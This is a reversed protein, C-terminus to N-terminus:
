VLLPLSVEAQAPAASPDLDEIWARLLEATAATSLVAGARPLGGDLEFTAPVGAFHAGGLQGRLVDLWDHARSLAAPERDHVRVMASYYPGLWATIALKSGPRERLGFPTFLELEIARMLRLARDPPLVAPPLSAALVHAPELGAVRAGNELRTFLRGSADDWLLDACRQRQERAWALYFAGNERRGVLRAMQAMAVLAHYWLANLDARAVSVGGAEVELLGSAGVRVGRTGSRYSQMISELPPYLTERLGELDDCRRAYLDAAAVLWLAPEPDGYLPTGDRTDFSEPALGEDLYDIVGGMIARAAEFDRLAILAGLARLPQGARPSAIPLASEIVVRGGRETLGAELARALPPVWRDRPTVLAERRRALPSNHAAAAQRATYDAGAIARRTRAEDRGRSERELHELCAALSRPPPTGLRGEAALRRFLDAEASAVLHLPQGERLAGEIWGPVLADERETGAAGDQDLRHVIGRRWLRAPLFAGNHWLTLAPSGARLEIRVRGPVGQTAGPADSEERQLAEPARCVVRPGLTLRAEPGSVLRYSVSVAAHGHIVNVRKELVVEGVRLRWTPAPLGTFSEVLPAQGPHAAREALLALDWAGRETGLREEVGLLLTTLRGHPSSATLLAHTRRERLGHAAGCAGGGLGDALLWEADAGTRAAALVEQGNRM